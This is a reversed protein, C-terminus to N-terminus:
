LFNPRVEAEPSRWHDILLKWDTENVRDDRNALLEENTLTEDFSKSKLDAKFEKWKKAVSTIVFNFAAADLDYYTQKLM